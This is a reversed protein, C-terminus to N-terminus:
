EKVIRLSKRIEAGIVKVVYMGSTLEAVNIGFVPQEPVNIHQEHVLTGTLDYFQVLTNAGWSLGGSFHLTIELESPNPYLLLSAEDENPLNEDFTALSNSSNKSDETRSARSGQCGVIYGNSCSYEIVECGYGLQAGRIRGYFPRSSLQWFVPVITGALIDPAGAAKCQGKTVVYGEDNIADAYVTGGDASIGTIAFRWNQKYNLGSHSNNPLESDNGRAGQRLPRITCDNHIEWAGPKGDTRMGAIVGVVYTKKHYTFDAFTAPASAVIFDLDKPFNETAIECSGISTTFTVTPGCYSGDSIQTTSQQERNENQWYVTAINPGAVTKTTFYNEGPLAFLPRRQGTGDVEYGAYIEFGNPNIVRWVRENEPDDSCESTLILEEVTIPTCDRVRMTGEATGDSKWLELYNEDSFASFYLVGNVIASSSAGTVGAKSYIDEIFVTSEPTGDTRWLAAGNIGNISSFFYFTNDTPAKHDDKSSAPDAYFDKISITGETTGDSMWYERGNVGDDATFYLTNGVVTFGGPKSSGFGPLIDKVMVTGEATGDSKWLETGHTGDNANFYLTNGAATLNRPGGSSGEFVIDKVLATSATSENIKWLEYGYNGFFAITLFIPLFFGAKRLNM